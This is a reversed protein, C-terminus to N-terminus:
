GAAARRCRYPQGAEALLGQGSHIQARTWSQDDDRSVGIVFSEAQTRSDCLKGGRTDRDLHDRNTVTAGGLGTRCRRGLNTQFRYSPV